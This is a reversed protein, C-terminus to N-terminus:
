RRRRRLIGLAGLGLLVITGPEPTIVFALDVSDGEYPHGMEFPYRMEIWGTDVMLFVADDNFHDQLLPDAVKWGWLNPADTSAVVELWYITGEEQFFSAATDFLFNYQICKNSFTVGGTAPDQFGHGLGDAWLREHWAGQSLDGSTWLLTSPESWGFQGSPNDSYINLRFQTPFGLDESLTGWFHIDTVPGTETCKWDDALSYPSMSAISGGLPSLDPLQPYHMKCPDGVNWEGLAPVAVFAIAAAIVLLSNLKM